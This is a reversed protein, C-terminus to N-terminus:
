ALLLQRVLYMSCTKGKRILLLCYKSSFLLPIVPLSTLNVALKVLEPDCAIDVHTAGGKEAAIVVSAVNDRDFNNLGSIIKLARGQHFDKLVSEKITSSLSAKTTLTKTSFRHQNSSFVFANLPNHNRQILFHTPSAISSCLSSPGM